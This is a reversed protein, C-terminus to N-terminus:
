ELANPPTNSEVDDIKKGCFPCFPYALSISAQKTQFSGDKRKKRYSCEIVPKKVFSPMAYMWNMSAMPDGTKEQLNQEIKEFCDCM